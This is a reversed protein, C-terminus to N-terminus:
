KYNWAALPPLSAVSRPNFYALPTVQSSLQPHWLTVSIPPTEPRPNRAAFPTEHTRPNLAAFTAVQRPNWQGAPEQPNWISMAGPLITAQEKDNWQAALRLRPNLQMFGVAFVAIASCIFISRLIRKFM